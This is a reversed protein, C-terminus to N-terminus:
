GCYLKSLHGFQEVMEVDSDAQFIVMIQLFLTTYIFSHLLPPLKLELPLCTKTPHLVNQCNEYATCNLVVCLLVHGM